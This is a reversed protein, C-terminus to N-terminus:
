GKVKTYRTMLSINNAGSVEWTKLSKIERKQLKRTFNGKKKNHYYKKRPLKKILLTPLGDLKSELFTEIVEIFSKM